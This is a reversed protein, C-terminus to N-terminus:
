NLASHAGSSAGTWGVPDLFRSLGEISQRAFLPLSGYACVYGVFAIEGRCFRPLECQFRSNSPRGGASPRKAICRLWEKPHRSDKRSTVEDRNGSHVPASDPTNTIFGRSIGAVGGINSTPVATHNPNYVWQNRVVRYAAGEPPRRGGRRGPIVEIPFPM